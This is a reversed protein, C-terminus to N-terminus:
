NIEKRRGDIIRYRGLYSAQTFTQNFNPASALEIYSVRSAVAQAEARQKLSVLALKAGTGAANGAQRFRNLPLSPLMGIAVASAVDIYTGFAGAIIVQKIEGEPCDNTELLVQIGARIAAKGLQLERVDHQTITIAPKGKREEKSVLVFERQGKYTRVRPHSKDIRGGEDVAKALYLQALADLIGSGCIGVPPANNITQYQVSDGTIRLREIAGAAARMGYKIHGGEFAPGSACSTATIKGKYILSVETNTGIDLALVPGEARGAETALLVAVHDAGVFGAINPLLYVYAGAATQLGLDAAKVEV